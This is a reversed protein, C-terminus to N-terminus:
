RGRTNEKPPQKRQLPRRDPQSRQRAMAGSKSRGIHEIADDGVPRLRAPPKKTKIPPSRSEKNTTLDFIEYLHPDIERALAGFRNWKKRFKPNAHAAQLLAKSAWRVYNVVRKGDLSRHVAISIFGPQTEMFRAREAMLHLAETQRENSDVEVETIQVVGGSNQTM